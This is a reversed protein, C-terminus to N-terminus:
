GRQLPCTVCRVSGWMAVLDSFDRAHVHVHFSRLLENTAPAARSSVVNEPDLWFLNAALHREGEEPDLPRLETFFPRVIERSAAPLKGPAFLARGNPLPAFCCDLHLACHPVPVVRIGVPGLQEVLWDIGGVNTHSNTGVLVVEADRLVFVDGGELTAGPRALETISAPQCRLPTLGAVEPHRYPDRLAGVFLRDRIVFCPDRTFVQCFAGSQTAPSEVAVGFQDILNRFEAIQERVRNGSVPGTEPHEALAGEGVAAQIAEISLDVANAANHLFVSRLRSFEDRVMFAGDWV